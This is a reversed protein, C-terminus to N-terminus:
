KCMKIIKEEIKSPHQESFEYRSDLGNIYDKIDNWNDELYTISLGGPTICAYNEYINLAEIFSIVKCADKYSLLRVFIHKKMINNKM